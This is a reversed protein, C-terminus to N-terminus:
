AASRPSRWATTAPRCRRSRARSRRRPRAPRRRPSAGDWPASCRAASAQSRLPAGHHVKEGPEVGPVPQDEADHQHHDFGERGAHEHEPEAEGCQDDPQQRECHGPGPLALDDGERRQRDGHHRQPPMERAATRRRGVLREQVPAGLAQDAAGERQLPRDDVADARHPDVVRHPADCPRIQRGAAAHFDHTRIPCAQSDRRFLGSKIATM